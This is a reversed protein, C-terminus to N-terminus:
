FAWSTNFRAWNTTVPNADKVSVLKDQSLEFKIAVTDAFEHRLGVVHVTHAYNNQLGLFMDNHDKDGKITEYRYYATCDKPTDVGLQAYVSSLTTKTTESTTADALSVSPDAATAPNKLEHVIQHAETIFDVIGHKYVIHADAITETGAGHYRETPCYDTGDGAKVGFCDSIEDKYMGAGVRLGEIPLNAYLLLNVAKNANADVRNQPPDALVGRGNGVNFIYGFNGAILGRMELGVTHLPLLGGQDEFLYVNPRTVSTQFWSGHHYTDNWYGMATHFRGMSVTFWDRPAWKILARETDVGVSNDTGPEFAIEALWSLNEGLSNGLFLDLAGNSFENHNKTRDKQQDDKDKTSKASLTVDMFGSVKTEAHAKGSIGVAAGFATAFIACSKKTIIRRM